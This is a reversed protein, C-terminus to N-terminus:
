MSESEKKIKDIDKDIINEVKGIEGVEKKVSKLLEEKESETLGSAVGEDDSSSSGGM